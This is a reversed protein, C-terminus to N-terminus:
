RLMQRAEQSGGDIDKETDKCRVHHGSLSSLRHAGDAATYFLTYEGYPSFLPGVFSFIFMGILICVGVIALKNRMFRKRVLQGPTVVKELNLDKKNAEAM